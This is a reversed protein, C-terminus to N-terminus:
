VGAAVVQPRPGRARYQARVRSRRLSRAFQGSSVRGVTRPKGTTQLEGCAEPRLFQRAARRKPDPQLPGDGVPSEVAAPDDPAGYPPALVRARRCGTKLVRRTDTRLHAGRDASCVSQRNAHATRIAGLELRGARVQM